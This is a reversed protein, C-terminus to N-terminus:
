YIDVEVHSYIIAYQKLSTRQLTLLLFVPTSQIDGTQSKTEKPPLSVYFNRLFAKKTLNVRRKPQQQQQKNIVLFHPRNLGYHSNELNQHMYITVPRKAMGKAFYVFLSKSTACRCLPEEDVQDKTSNSNSFTPKQPSPFVPTGPSFGRPAFSLVM